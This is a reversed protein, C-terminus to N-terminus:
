RFSENWELIEPRLEGVMKKTNEYDEGMGLRRQYKALEVLIGLDNPYTNRLFLYYDRTIDLYDQDINEIDAPKSFDKITLFYYLPTSNRLTALNKGNLGRALEMYQLAEKKISPQDNLEVEVLKALLIKAKTRYYKPEQSNLAIAKDIYREALVNEKVKLSRESSAAYFDAIYIKAFVNISCLYLLFGVIILLAKRM